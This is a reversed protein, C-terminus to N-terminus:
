DVQYQDVRSEVSRFGLKILKRRAAGSRYGSHCYVIVDDNFQINPHLKCIKRIKKLPINIAESHHGRDFEVPQRVDIVVRSM